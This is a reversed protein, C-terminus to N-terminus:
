VDFCVFMVFLVSHGDFQLRITTTVM